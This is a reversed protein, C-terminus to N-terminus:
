RPKLRTVTTTATTVVTTIPAQIMVMKSMIPASAAATEPVVSGGSGAGPQGLTVRFAYRDGNPAHAHGSFEVYIGRSGMDESRFTLKTGPGGPQDYRNMEVNVRTELDDIAVAGVGALAGQGPAALHSSFRYSGGQEAGKTNVTGDIIPSVSVDFELGTGGQLVLKQHGNERASITCDLHAQGSHILPPEAPMEPSGPTQPPIAQGPSDCGLLTAVLLMGGGLVAMMLRQAM